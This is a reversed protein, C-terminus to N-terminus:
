WWQGVGDMVARVGCACRHKRIVDVLPHISERWDAAIDCRCWGLGALPLSEGAAESREDPLKGVHSVVVVVM